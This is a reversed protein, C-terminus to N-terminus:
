VLRAKEIFNGSSLAPLTLGKIDTNFLSTSIKTKRICHIQEGYTM